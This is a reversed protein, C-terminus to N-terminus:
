DGAAGDARAGSTGCEEELWRRCEADNGDIHRWLLISAPAARSHLSPPLRTANGDAAIAYIFSDVDNARNM